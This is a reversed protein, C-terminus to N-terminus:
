LSGRFGIGTVDAGSVTVNRSTPTFTYGTLSPTVTYNGDAVGTFTYRGQSDTTTTASADGSLTM